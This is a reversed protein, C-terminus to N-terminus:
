LIFVERETIVRVRQFLFGFTLATPVGTMSNAGFQQGTPTDCASSEKSTM